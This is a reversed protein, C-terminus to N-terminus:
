PSSAGFIASLENVVVKDSGDWPVSEGGSGGWFTLMGSMNSSQGAQALWAFILSFFDARRQSGCNPRTPSPARSNCEPVNIAANAGSGGGLANMKVHFDDLSNFVSKSCHVNDYIDCGYWDLNPIVWTDYQEQSLGDINVMGFKVNGGSEIVLEAMHVQARRFDDPEHPYRPDMLGLSAPEHWMTLLSTHGAPASAIFGKLGDDLDGNNLMTIDPRISVLAHGNHSVVPWPLNAYGIINPYIHNDLYIRAATPGNPLKGPVEMWMEDYVTKNAGAFVM